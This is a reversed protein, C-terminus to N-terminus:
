KASGPLIGDERAEESRGVRQDGWVPGAQSARESRRLFVASLTKLILALDGSFSINEIYDLNLALKHPLVVRRYWEQPNEQEALMEAEDRYAISAPDTIGPRIRLVQRQEATYDAVFGELEPRPGVLSIDGKWVNWLQPLEDIKWRRLFAGLLSIRADGAVTVSATGRGPGALAMTRFKILSFPRGDKGVRRQSFFVPGPEASALSVLAVAASVGLLVPSLAILGAVSSACDFIRKGYRPYFRNARPAPKGAHGLKPQVAIATKTM